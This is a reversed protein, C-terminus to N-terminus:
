WCFPVPISLVQDLQVDMAPRAAKIRQPLRLGRPPLLAPMRATVLRLAKKLGHTAPLASLPM